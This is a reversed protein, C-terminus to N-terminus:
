DRAASTSWKIEGTAADLGFLVGDARILALEGSARVDLQFGGVISYRRSWRLANTARDRGWLRLNRNRRADLSASVVIDGIEASRRDHHSAFEVLDAELRKTAAVREDRRHAWDGLWDSSQSPRSPFDVGQGANAATGDLGPRSPCYGGSAAELAAWASTKGSRPLLEVIVCEDLRYLRKPTGSLDKTWLVDRPRGWGRSGTDPADPDVTASDVAYVDVSRVDVSRVSAGLSMSSLVFVTHDDCVLDVVETGLDLPALWVTSGTRSSLGVLAINRDLSDGHSARRLGIPDLFGDKDLDLLCLSSGPILFNKEPAPFRAFVADRYALLFALGGFSVALAAPLAWDLFPTAKARRKGAELGFAAFVAEAREVRARRRARVGTMVMALLVLAAAISIPFSLPTFLSVWSGVIAALWLVVIDVLFGLFLSVFSPTLSVPFEDFVVDDIELADAITGLLQTAQDRETLRFSDVVCLEDHTVFGLVLRQEFRLSGTSLLVLRFSDDFPITRDDVRLEISLATRHVSAPRARKATISRSVGTIPPSGSPPELRIRLKDLLVVSFAFGGFLVWAVVGDSVAGTAALFAVDAFGLLLLFAQGVFLAFSLRGPRSSNRRLVLTTGKREVQFSGLRESM